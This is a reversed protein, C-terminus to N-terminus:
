PNVSEPAAITTAKVWPLAPPTGAGRAALVTLAAAETAGHVRDMRIDEWEVSLPGRYGTDSPLPSVDDTFLLGQEEAAEIAEAQHAPDHAPHQENDNM